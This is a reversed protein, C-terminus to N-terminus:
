NGARLPNVIKVDALMRGAFFAQPGEPGSFPRELEGLKKGPAKELM